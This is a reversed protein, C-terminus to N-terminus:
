KNIKKETESLSVEFQERSGGNAVDCVRNSPIRSGRYLYPKSRAQREFDFDTYAGTPAIYPVWSTTRFRFETWSFKTTTYKSWPGVAHWSAKLRGPGALLLSQFVTALAIFLALVGILLTTIFIPPNWDFGSLSSLV